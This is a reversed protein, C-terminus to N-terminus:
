FMNFCCPKKPMVGKVCCWAGRTAETTTRWWRASNRSAASRRRASSSAGVSWTRCSTSGSLRFGLSPLPLWPFSPVSIWFIILFSLRVRWTTIPNVSAKFLERTRNGSLGAAPRPSLAYGHCVTVQSTQMLHRLYPAGQTNPRPQPFIAFLIVLRLRISHKHTTYIATANEENM